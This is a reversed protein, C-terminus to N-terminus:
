VSNVPARANSVPIARIRRAFYVPVAPPPLTNAARAAWRAVLSVRARRIPRHFGLDCHATSCEFNSQCVAGAPLRGVIFQDCAPPYFGEVLSDWGSCDLAAVADLCATALSADYSAVNNGLAAEMHQIDDHFLAREIPVCHDALSFSAGCCANKQACVVSARRTEWAEDPGNSTVSGRNCSSGLLTGLGLKLVAVATRM